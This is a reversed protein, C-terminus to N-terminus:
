IQYDEGTISKYGDLLRQWQEDTIRSKGIGYIHKEALNSMNMRVYEKTHWGDFLNTMEFPRYAKKTSLSFLNFEEIQQDLKKGYRKYYECSYQWFYQSLEDKPYEMVRNILLHNTKGKDRWQRMMLVLERLQGKFQLEPLYPLLQYHWIRITIVGKRKLENEKSHRYYLM